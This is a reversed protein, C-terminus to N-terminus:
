RWFGLDPWYGNYAIREAQILNGDILCVNYREGCAACEINLSAGGAPGRLFHTKHCYPCRRAALLELGAEIM